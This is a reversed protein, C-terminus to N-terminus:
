KELYDTLIQAPRVQAGANSATIALIRIRDNTPLTLTTAGAPIDIPYAYLYSYAYPVNSGDAAHHHSSYWAVSSSKIFGPTLGTMTTGRWTRNDWQGIYGSWDQIKLDVHTSGIKFTATVDRTAPDTSGTAAALIYLRNFNGAPLAIQQGNPVVADPETGPALTFNVDAYSITEPLMEAPLSNGQSDFAGTDGKGDATAVRKDYPLKVAQWTPTAVKNAPTGFKVAFTRPQFGKFSTVLEGNSVTAPGVDEEAGNVERASVIPTFFAAHVDQAPKGDLEVMRVIYEDKNKEAVPEAKKLALVRIRDNNLKMLSFTKGLAGAHPASQFAILPENLRLAQWDTNSQQFTGAHSALGYVFEHHGVDQTSQDAYSGRAGPTRVLTLRLTNETPKDSGNKCDTLLTVGFAGGADSLDVMQHSAVEFQNPFETPREITGIDWNYTANTNKATLPFVAKLTGQRANWDMVHSIEVRNGADGAALRITQVFKSNEAERTVELAVRAPGNEVIKLKAPGGVVTRPAQQEDHWDM